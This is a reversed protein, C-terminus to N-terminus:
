TPHNDWTFIKVFEVSFVFNFYSFHYWVSIMGIKHSHKIKIYLTYCKLCDNLPIHDQKVDDNNIYNYLSELTARKNGKITYSKYTKYQCISKLAMRYTCYWKSSTFSSVKNMILISTNNLAIRDVIANHSIFGKIDYDKILNSILNDIYQYSVAKINSNNYRKMNIHYHKIIDNIFYQYSTKINNYNDVVMFAMCYVLKKHNITIFETDLILYNHKKM